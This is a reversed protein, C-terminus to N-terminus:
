LFQPFATCVGVHFGRMRLHPEQHPFRGLTRALQQPGLPRAHLSSGGRGPSEDVPRVACSSLGWSCSLWAAVHLPNSVGSALPRLKRSNYGLCRTSNAAFVSLSGEWIKQAYLRVPIWPTPRHLICAASGNKRVDFFRSIRAIVIPASRQKRCLTCTSPLSGVLEDPSTDPSSAFSEDSQWEWTIRV